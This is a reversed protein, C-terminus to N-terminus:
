SSREQRKIEAHLSAAEASVAVIRDRAETLDARQGESLGGAEVVLDILGVSPALRNAILHGLERGATTATLLRGLLATRDEHSLGDVMSALMREWSALPLSRIKIRGARRVGQALLISAGFGLTLWSGVQALAHQDADSRPPLSIAIALVGLACVWGALLTGNFWLHETALVWRPGGVEGFRKVNVLDWADDILAWGSLLLGGLVIITRLVEAMTLPDTM